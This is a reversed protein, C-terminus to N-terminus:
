PNTRHVSTSAPGHDLRKSSPPEHHSEPTFRVLFWGGAAAMTAWLAALLYGSVADTQRSMVIALWGSAIAAVYIVTVAGRVTMGTRVLRHSTHDASGQFPSVGRHLRSITVLGTDLLPVTLVLIPVLVAIPPGQDLRLRIGLAALMFGLFLSGADGMYIKAPPLNHRLFGAACGALALSLGAVLYQGNLAAVMFFTWAAIAAVGASLGDMNDLLNLANTIGVVWLVTLGGDLWPDGFLLVGTGGFWLAVAAVVTAALRITIGLGRLDDILGVLALLSAGGLMVLLDTLGSPPPRLLAAGGITFTFAGLMAMGGLYPVPAAQGKYGGPHDLVERRVAFRLALPVLILSLTLTGVFIGIYEWPGLESM